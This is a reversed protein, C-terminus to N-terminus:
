SFDIIPSEFPIHTKIGIRNFLILFNYKIPFNLFVNM